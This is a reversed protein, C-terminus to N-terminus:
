LLFAIAAIGLNVVATALCYECLEKLKFVQIGTLFVSSLLALFAAAQFIPLLPFGLLSAINLFTLFVFGLVSLYFLIGLVENPINFIRSYKSKVVKDCDQGVFCVLKKNKTKTYFIYSSDALGVLAVIVLLLIM